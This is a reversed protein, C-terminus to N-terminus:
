LCLFNCGVSVKTQFFFFFLETSISFWWCVLDLRLRKNLFRWHSSVSQSSYLLPLSSLNGERESFQLCSVFQQLLSYESVLRLQAMKTHGQTDFYSWGKCIVCIGLHAFVSRTVFYPNDSNRYKYTQFFLM